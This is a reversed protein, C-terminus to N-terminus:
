IMYLYSFRSMTNVFIDCKHIIFETIIHNFKSPVINRKRNGVDAATNEALTNRAVGVSKIAVFKMKYCVAPSLKFRVVTNIMEFAAIKENGTRIIAMGLGGADIVRNLIDKEENLSTIRFPRVGNGGNKQFICKRKM